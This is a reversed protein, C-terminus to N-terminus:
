SFHGGATSLIILDTRLFATPEPLADPLGLGINLGEGVPFGKERKEMFDGYHAAIQMFPTERITM